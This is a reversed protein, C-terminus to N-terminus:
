IVIRGQEISGLCPALGDVAAHCTLDVVTLMVHDGQRREVKVAGM